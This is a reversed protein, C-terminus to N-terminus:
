RNEQQLTGVRSESSQKLSEMEERLKRNEVEATQKEATLETLTQGLEEQKAFHEFIVQFLLDVTM